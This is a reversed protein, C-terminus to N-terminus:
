DYQLQVLNVVQDDDLGNDVHANWGSENLGMDKLADEEQAGVEDDKIQTLTNDQLEPTVRWL